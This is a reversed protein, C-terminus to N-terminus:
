IWMYLNPIDSEGRSLVLLEGLVAIMASIM